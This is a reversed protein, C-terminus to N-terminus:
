ICGAKRHRAAVVFSLDGNEFAIRRALFRIDTAEARPTGNANM